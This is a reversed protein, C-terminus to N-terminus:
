LVIAGGIDFACGHSLYVVQKGRDRVFSEVCRMDQEDSLIGTFLVTDDLVISAGGIFGYDFGDLVIGGANVKLFEMNHRYAAKEIGCDSSILSDADVVCCSCRTYSQRVHIKEGQFIDLIAPDTCHLNHILRKGTVCACLSSDEPYKKGQAVHAPLVEYGRSTLFNVYSSNEMIHHSVIIKKDLRIVSLDAHGALRPDIYPNDCLWLVELDLKALAPELRSKYREGIILTNRM